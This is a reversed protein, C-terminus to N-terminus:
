FSSRCLCGRTTCAHEDCVQRRAPPVFVGAAEEGGGEGPKSFGRWPFAGWRVHRLNSCRISISVSARVSLEGNDTWYTCHYPGDPLLLLLPSAFTDETKQDAPRTANATAIRRSTEHLCASATASQPVNGDATPQQSGYPRHPPLGISQSSCTSPVLHEDREDGKTPSLRGRQSGEESHPVAPAEGGEPQDVEGGAQQDARKDRRLQQRRAEEQEGSGRLDSM